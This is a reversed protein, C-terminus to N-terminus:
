ISIYTNDYCFEESCNLGMDCSINKCVINCYFSIKLAYTKIVLWLLSKVFYLLLYTTNKLLKGQNPM